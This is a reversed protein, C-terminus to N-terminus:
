YDSCHHERKTALPRPVMAKQWTSILSASPYEEKKKFEEEGEKESCNQKYILPKLFKRSKKKGALKM